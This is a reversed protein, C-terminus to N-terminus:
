FSHEWTSHKWMSSIPRESPLSFATVPDGVLFLLEEWTYSFSFLQSSLLYFYGYKRLTSLSTQFGYGENRPLSPFPLASGIRLFQPYNLGTFEGPYGLLLILKHGSPVHKKRSPGM